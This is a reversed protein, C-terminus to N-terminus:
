SPLRLNPTPGPTSPLRPTAFSFSPHGRSSLPPRRPSHRFKLHTTPTPTASRHTVYGAPLTVDDPIQLCWRDRQPAVRTTLLAGRVDPLLSVESNWELRGALMRWKEVMKRAALDVVTPDLPDSASCDFVFAM